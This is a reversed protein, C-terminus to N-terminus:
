VGSRDTRLRKIKKDLQNEVEAKYKLFIEVVENKSKLLYVKTYRSFDDVFNIYYKKGGKSITNKFDVLYSHILELLEISRTKALKFPKKKAYKAEVYVSCKSCNEDNVVDMLHMTELRRISSIINVHGIMNYVFAPSSSTNPAVFITNLVFM